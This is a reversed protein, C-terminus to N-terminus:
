HCPVYSSHHCHDGAQQRRRPGSEIHFPYPFPMSIDRLIHCTLPLYLAYGQFLPGFCPIQITRLGPYKGPIQQCDSTQDAAALSCLLSFEARWLASPPGQIRRRAADVLVVESSENM